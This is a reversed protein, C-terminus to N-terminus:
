LHNPTKILSHPNLRLIIVNILHHALRLCHCHLFNLYNAHLSFSYSFQLSFCTLYFYLFSFFIFYFLFILFFKVMLHNTITFYFYLSYNIFRNTMMLFGFVFQLSNIFFLTFLAVFMVYFVFGILNM